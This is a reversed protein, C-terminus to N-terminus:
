EIKDSKKLNHQLCLLQINDATLSSGGKSFPIIHDFHLNQNNGCQACQGKDRKWVQQKIHSPILRPHKLVAFTAQQPNLVEDVLELRFKWVQRGNSLEQWADMLEFIGNYVWNGSKIKEYVKVLEPENQGSKFQQVAEHFLGNQTLGGGPFRDPQDTVTPQPTQVTLPANHGEYILIRGDDEIRDAYPANTRRSMLVVSMGGRLRFNMGRQLMAGELQCMELHTLVDGPQVNMESNSM